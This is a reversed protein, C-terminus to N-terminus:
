PKKKQGKAPAAKPKPLSGYYAALARIQEDDLSQAVSAMAANTRAGTRYFGITEAFAQPDQGVISPIGNDTGDIRHCSSCEQALHRGLALTREDAVASTVAVFLPAALLAATLGAWAKAVM